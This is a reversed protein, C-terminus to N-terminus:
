SNKLIGKIKSFFSKSNEEQGKKTETEIDSIVKLAKLILGKSDMIAENIKVEIIPLKKFRSKDIEKDSAIIVASAEKLDEESIIDETGITGQTEVKIEHGLSKAAMSLAEAAIYTHALGTPCNTIAVFKM